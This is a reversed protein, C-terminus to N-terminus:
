RVSPASADPAAADARPEPTRAANIAEEMAPSHLSEADADLTDPPDFVACAGLSVLLGLVFPSIRPPTM